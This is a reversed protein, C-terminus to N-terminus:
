NSISRKTLNSFTKVTVSWNLADKCFLLLVTSLAKIYLANYLTILPYFANYNNMIYMTICKMKDYIILVLNLICLTVIFQYTNYLLIIFQNYNKMLIFLANYPANCPM